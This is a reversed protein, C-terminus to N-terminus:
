SSYRGSLLTLDGDLKKGWITQNILLYNLLVTCRAVFTMVSAEM